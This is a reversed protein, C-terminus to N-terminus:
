SPNIDIKWNTSTYKLVKELIKGHNLPRKIKILLQWRYLKNIKPIFAPSPGLIMVQSKDLKYELKQKLGTAEQQAKQEDHHSYTLSILNSFPPYHLEKRKTIEKDYFSRYDHRIAYGFIDNDPNYTQIIVKGRNDGRGTRGGVQLILSFAKETARFDPLNQTGDISIIGVLDVGPIDWGKAIMQTGILIDFNKNKFNEYINQHNKSVSDSDMRKIRAKPFFKRTEREVKQTGQGFFKIAASNCNPCRTSENKDFDCHHCYLKGSNYNLHYTLPIDCNPCKEIYGCDRCIVFTSLGRRNLFLVVQRKRELVKTIEEKIALSLVSRNGFQFENRMDVVSVEPMLDQIFRKNLTHLHYNGKEAFYFSELSPTASGLILISRTLRCLQKAVERAEYRPSQEQKYSTEHEEDMVVLGLNRYPLFLASRSGVVINKKGRSINKWANARETERLYSHYLVAQGPFRDEFRSVIQPTLSVEPVLILAQKNERITEELVELYIETKGSGTVGFILHPKSPNNIILKSIKKQELSLKPKQIQENKQDSKSIERRKIFLSFPLMTKLTQSISAGYFRSIWKAMELFYPPLQFASVELISKTSFAPKTTFGFVIGESIKNRFPMKVCSGLKVQSELKSPVGYTFFDENGSAIKVGCIVYKM